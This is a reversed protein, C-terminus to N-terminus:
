NIVQLNSPPNPAITDSPPPNTTGNTGMPTIAWKPSSSEFTGINPVGAKNANYSDIGSLGDVTLDALFSDAGLAILEYNHDANNIVRRGSRPAKSPDFHSQYQTLNQIWQGNAVTPIRYPGILNGIGNPSSDLNIHFRLKAMHELLKKTDVVKMQRAMGLSSLMFNNMWSSAANTLGNGSLLPNEIFESVGTSWQGLPSPQGGPFNWYSNKTRVNRGWNWIEQKAPFSIPLNQVGEFATVQDQIKDIFYAQEPEGDPSIFAAYAVNKFGWADGRVNTHNILGVPGPRGFSSNWAVAKWGLRFAAEMQLCELYYYEGSFLYATYCADSYHSSDLQTWGDKSTTGRRIRDSGQAAGDNTSSLTSTPRANISVIRGFTGVTGTNLNVGERVLNPTMTWKQDFYDGRGALNDAERMFIPIRGALDANGRVMEWGRTSMSYLWLIEWTKQLGIFDAQGTNNFAKHINGLKTGNGTLSSNNALWTNYRSSELSSSVNLSADYHPIAGTTVLYSLNHDIRVTGPDTGVWFSKHWRSQGIHNFSSHTWETKPNSNGSKLTLSYSLDRTSKSSDNSVWSNEITYGVKVDKGQPYFWAEFIPHLAKSGDGFDQDYSRATTRDEIIVATVIPGKLWYRFKGDALMTRARVTRSTSGNMQITADFNYASDLMQSQNLFGTNNGNSQNVFEINTGGTSLSPVVFSVIAYKVSGDEWRNKVDCQTLVLTGNVKARAFNQIDGMRFPRAISIPKNSQSSGSTSYITLANSEDSSPPPSPPPSTTGGSTTVNLASSQSSTNGADDFAKVRYSYTTNAQLATDTYSRGSLTAIIGSNRLVQYGAVGVNDSSSNWNLSVTSETKATVSLGTPTSPPSTDAAPPTVVTGGQGHKYLWMSSNTGEWDHYMVVGYTSIPVVFGHEVNRSTKKLTSPRTAQDNILTWQNTSFNFAYFKGIQTLVLMDGTTPDITILSGRTTQAVDPVRLPHPATPRVTINGSQDMTCWTSSFVNAGNNGGGFVMEKRKPNYTAFTHYYGTGGFCDARVAYTSWSASVHDYQRIRGNSGDPAYWKSREPFYMLGLAIGGDNATKGGLTWNNNNLDYELFQLISKEDHIFGLRRTNVSIANHNYGHGYGKPAGPPEKGRTWTNTSESYVHLQSYNFHGSGLFLVRKSIPDWTGEGMYQVSINQNPGQPHHLYDPGWGNTNLKAWTGTQMSNAVNSLTSGWSLSSGLGLLLTLMIVIKNRM